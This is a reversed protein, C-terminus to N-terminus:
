RYTTWRRTWSEVLVVLAKEIALWSEKDRPAVIELLVRDKRLDITFADLTGLGSAAVERALDCAADVDLSAEDVRIDAATALAKAMRILLGKRAAILPRARSLYATVNKGLALAVDVRALKVDLLLEAEFPIPEAGGRLSGSRRLTGKAPSVLREADLEDLWGHFATRLVRRERRIAAAYPGLFVAALAYGAREGVREWFPQTM